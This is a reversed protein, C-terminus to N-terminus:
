AAEAGPVPVDLVLRDSSKDRVQFHFPARQELGRLLEVPEALKMELTARGQAFRKVSIQSTASIGGAADEFGVLQSFDGFPGVEIEVLGEYVDGVPRLAPSTAQDPEDDDSDGIREIAEQLSALLRERAEVPRRGLETMRGGIEAADRLARMRIRTAQGRAQRRIDELEDLM